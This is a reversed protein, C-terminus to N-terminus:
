AGGFRSLELRRPKAAVQLDETMAVVMEDNM